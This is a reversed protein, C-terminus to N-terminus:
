TRKADYAVDDDPTQGAPRAGSEGYQRPGAAMSSPPRACNLADGPAAVRDLLSRRHSQSRYNGEHGQNCHRPDAVGLVCGCTFLGEDLALDAMLDAFARPIQDAGLEVAQDPAFGARDFPVAVAFRVLIGADRPVLRREALVQLIGLRLHGSGLHDKCAQGFVVLDVIENGIELLESRVPLLDSGADGTAVGAPIM